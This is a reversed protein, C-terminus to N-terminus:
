GNYQHCMSWCQIASLSPKGEEENNEDEAVVLVDVVIVVVGVVDVVNIVDAVSVETLM